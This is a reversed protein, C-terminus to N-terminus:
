GPESSQAKRGSTRARAHSIIMSEGWEKALGKWMPLRRDNIGYGQCALELAKWLIAEWADKTFDNDDDAASLDTLLGYYNRHITVVQDPTKGLRINRAWITYYVPLDEKTTDPFLVDFAEKDRYILFVVSSNTPHLYWLTHPRLWGTPVTYDYTSAVTLFTDSKEGYSLDYNRLYWRIASNIADTRIATPLRTTNAGGIWDGVAAQLLTLTTNAM